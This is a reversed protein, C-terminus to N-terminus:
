RIVIAPCPCEALVQESVSGLLAARLPSLGRRGIVIADYRGEGALRCIVRGPTGFESYLRVSGRDVGLAELTRRFVEGARRRFPAAAPDEAPIPGDAFGLAYVEGPTPVVYAVGLEAWPLTDLQGGLWAAARLASPSADSAVLIRRL